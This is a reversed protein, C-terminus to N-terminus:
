SLRELVGSRGVSSMSIVIERNQQMQGLWGSAQRRAFHGSAVFDPSLDARSVAGRRPLHSQGVACARTRNRVDREIRRYQTERNQENQSRTSSGRAAISQGSHVFDRSRHFGPVDEVGLSAGSTRSQLFVSM